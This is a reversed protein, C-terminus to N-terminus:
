EPPGSNVLGVVMRAVVPELERIEAPRGTRLQRSALEIVAGVIAFADHPSAFRPARGAEADTRNLEDIDRAVADLAQDRRALARPGAGVIEVLLTRAEDPFRALVALLARTTAQVRAAPEAGAHQRGAERMAGVVLEEAAEFLALLCDEKNDFHAYFTAKSMGAERAIAEATADAYGSRAFVAAAAAFLRRRQRRQRVALPPAHRGRPTSVPPSAPV